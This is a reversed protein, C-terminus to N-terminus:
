CKKFREDIKELYIEWCKECGNPHKNTSVPKKIAKYKKHKNCKM